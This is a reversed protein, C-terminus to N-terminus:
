YANNNQFSSDTVTITTVKVGNSAWIVAGVQKATNSDFNVNKLAVSTVERLMFVGGYRNATNRLFQTGQARMISKNSLSIAGGSDAVNDSFTVNERLVITAGSGKLTSSDIGFCTNNDFITSRIEILADNLTLVSDQATLNTFTSNMILSYPLFDPIGKSWGDMVPTTFNAESWAWFDDM